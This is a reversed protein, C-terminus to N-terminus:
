GAQAAHLEHYTDDGFDSAPLKELAENTKRVTEESAELM